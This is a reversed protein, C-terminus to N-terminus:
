ANWAAVKRAMIWVLRDLDGAMGSQPSRTNTLAAWCFGSHTRVLITATGPLSGTHWWNGYQNVAWGKAYRPNASTASTMTQITSPSLINPTTAFGDVRMAFRVLDAPRAIWGGHSDMRRVNMGYPDGDNQAYYRVEGAQREALTNGAIQMDDIGCRRLIVDRVYTEYRQGSLMEIVRGLLCYGFNSYAFHTGPTTDLPLSRLTWGILQAHNMQPNRSMPDRGDNPWGGGTHTLLQEVTIQDVYPNYPAAGYRVGLVGGDGFIRDSLHLRGQEILTFIAASTIPKTVSAIRFRHEPTLREEAERDALGFAEAYVLRGNRAIAVSMGPVAYQAMFGTAAAAMAAREAATGERPASQGFADRLATAAYGALPLGFTARRSLRIM